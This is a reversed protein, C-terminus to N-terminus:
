AGPRPTRRIAVAVKLLESSLVLGAEDVAAVNVEFRVKNADIVFQIMGGRRTFDPLDSVTLAASKGLTSFVRDLERDESASIFLVRCGGADRAHDLRRIAAPQGDITVGAGIAELAEGFPDRGLVCIAFTPAKPTTSPWAVFRGFSYLYAAKVQYESSKPTQGHIGAGTLVVCVFAAAIWQRRLRAAGLAAV